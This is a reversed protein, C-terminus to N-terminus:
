RGLHEVAKRMPASSVKIAGAMPRSMEVILFLATALALAGLFMITIV